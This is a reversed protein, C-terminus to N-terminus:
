CKFCMLPSHISINTLVRPLNIGRYFTIKFISFYSSKKSKVAPASFPFRALITKSGTKEPGENKDSASYSKNHQLRLLLAQVTHPLLYGNQVLAHFQYLIEFPVTQSCATITSRFSALGDAMYNCGFSAIPVNHPSFELYENESKLQEIKSAYEAPSVTICYILSQGLVKGHDANDHPIKSLREREGPRPLGPTTNIGLNKFISLPNNASQHALLFIRPPEWLTLFLSTPRDSLVVEQVTRYPIEVICFITLM